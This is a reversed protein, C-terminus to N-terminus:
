NKVIQRKKIKKCFPPNLKTECRCNMFIEHFIKELYQPQMFIEHHINGEDPPIMNPNYIVKLM